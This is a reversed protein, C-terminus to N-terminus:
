LMPLLSQSTSIRFSIVLDEERKEKKALAVRARYRLVVLSVAFFAIIFPILWLVTEILAYLLQWGFDSPIYKSSIWGEAVIATYKYLSIGAFIFFGGIFKAASFRYVGYVVVSSLLAVTLIDVLRVAFRVFEFAVPHYLGIQYNISASDYLPTLLFCYLGYIVIGVAALILYLKTRLSKEKPDLKAKNVKKNKSVRM